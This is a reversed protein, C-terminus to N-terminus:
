PVYYEVILQPRSGAPANGSFFKMYDAANDNNDDKSFYLRFQTSGTKNVFSFFTGSTWIKAYWNAVPTKPIAGINAQSASSQFDSKVLAASSGFRPKRIDVKLANLITFPNTGVPAGSQKIKLTVKTIVATDPL